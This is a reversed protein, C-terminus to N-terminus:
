FEKVISLGYIISLSGSIRGSNSTGLLSIFPGWEYHTSSQHILGFKLAYLFVLDSESMKSDEFELTDKKFGFGTSYGFGLHFDKSLNQRWRTEFLAGLLFSDGRVGLTGIYPVEHIEKHTYHQFFTSIGLEFHNSQKQYLANLFVGDKHDLSLEYGSSHIYKSELANVLGIGFTLSKDNSKPSVFSSGFIDKGDINEKKELELLGVTINDDKISSSQSEDSFNKIQVSPLILTPSNKRLNSEPLRLENVRNDLSQIKKDLLLLAKEYSTQGYACVVLCSFFSPFFLFELKM